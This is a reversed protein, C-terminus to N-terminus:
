TEMLDRIGEEISLTPQWHLLERARGIDALTIDADAKRRPQHIQHPSIIDALEKISINTGSGINFIEHRIDSEFARINAAVVDNVHIFDRRQHGEGHIHLVDGQSRRQLFIGLVLAYEGTDPQRPGYVNFYRLIVCPLNFLEDFMLCYKEGTLKSLAYFNFPDAPTKYEHHPPPQNGYFTSSGSYVIKKVHADRAAILINQTGVINVRTCTDIIDLSPASRSMAACHFVGTVDRMAHHCTALDTIDGEIFEAQDPIWERRGYILNDLIRVRYGRKLLAEALHSGIFGAGGTVLMFNNM